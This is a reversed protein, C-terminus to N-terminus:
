GSRGRPSPTTGEGALVRQGYTAILLADALGDHAKRCRDTALLSVNPYLQKAKLIAAAKTDRHPIGAFMAKQWQRADVFECPLRLAACVGEVVGSGKGLSFMSRVGQQPMPRQAEIVVHPRPLGEKLTGEIIEVIRHTNITKGRGRPDKLTPMIHVETDDGDLIAIGGALGPDIGIVIRNGVDNAGNEM